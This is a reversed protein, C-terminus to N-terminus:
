INYMIAHTSIGATRRVISSSDMISWISTTSDCKFQVEASRALIMRRRPSNHGHLEFGLKCWKGNRELMLLDQRLSLDYKSRQGQVFVWWSTTSTLCCDGIVRYRGQSDDIRWSRAGWVVSRTSDSVPSFKRVFICSLMAVAQSGHIVHCQKTIALVMSNSM